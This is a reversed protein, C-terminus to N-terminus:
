FYGLLDGITRTNGGGTDKDTADMQMSNRISTMVNKQKSAGTVSTIFNADQTGNLDAGVSPVTTTASSTDGDVLAKVMLDMIFIQTGDPIPLDGFETSKSSYMAMQSKTPAEFTIYDPATSSTNLKGFKIGTNVFGNLKKM